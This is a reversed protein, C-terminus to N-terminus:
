DISVHRLGPYLERESLGTSPDRGLMQAVDGRGAIEAVVTRLGRKAAAVGVAAVIM